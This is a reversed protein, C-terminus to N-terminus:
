KVHEMGVCVRTVISKTWIIIPSKRKIEAAAIINWNLSYNFHKEHKYYLTYVCVCALCMFAAMIFNLLVCVHVCARVCLMFHTSHVLDIRFIPHYDTNTATHTRQTCMHIDAHTNAQGNAHTYKTQLTSFAEANTYVRQISVQERKPGNDRTSEFRMWYQAFLKRKWLMWLWLTRREAYRKEM